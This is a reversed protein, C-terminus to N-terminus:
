TSKVWQYALRPTGDEAMTQGTYVFGQKEVAGQMVHNDAHTDIRLNDTQKKCFDVCAKFFGRTGPAAAVRHLTGYPEANLWAGETMQRYLPEEGLFFTFVGTIKGEADIMVFLQQRAIDEVVLSVSPYDEGWQTPNGQEKMFLRAAAFIALIARLDEDTALRIM